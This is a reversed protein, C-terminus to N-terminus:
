FCSAHFTNNGENPRYKKFFICFLFCYWTYYVIVFPFFFIAKNDKYQVTYKSEANKLHSSFLGSRHVHSVTAICHFTCFLIVLPNRVDSGLISM